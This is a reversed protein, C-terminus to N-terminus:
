APRAPTKGLITRLDEGLIFARRSLL